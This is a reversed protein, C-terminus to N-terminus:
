RGSHHRPAPRRSDCVPGAREKKAGRLDIRGVQHKRFPRMTLPRFLPLGTRMGLSRAVREAPNFSRRLKGFFSEPIAALGDYDLFPTERFFAPLGRQLLCDILRWYGEYKALRFLARGTERYLFLSSLQLPLFSLRRCWHCGRSDDHVGPYRCRVCGGARIPELQTLCAGCVPGAKAANCHLCDKPALLQTPDWALSM